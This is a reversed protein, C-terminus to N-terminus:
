AAAGPEAVGELGPDPEWASVYWGLGEKVLGVVRGEGELSGFKNRATEYLVVHATAKIADEESEFVLIRFAAHRRTPDGVFISELREHQGRLDEHFSRSLYDTALDRVVTPFWRLDELEVLHLRPIPM